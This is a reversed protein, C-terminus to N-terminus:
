RNTGGVLAEPDRRAADLVDLVDLSAYRLIRPPAGGWPERARRAAGNMVVALMVHLRETLGAKIGRPLIEIAHIIIM